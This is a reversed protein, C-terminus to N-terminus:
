QEREGSLKSHIRFQHNPSKEIIDLHNFSKDKLAGQEGVATLWVPIATTDSAGGELRIDQRSIYIQSLWVRPEDVSALDRLLSSFKEKQAKDGKRIFALLMKKATADKRVLEFQAQLKPSVTRSSQMKMLSDYSQQKQHQIREAVQLEREIRSQYVGVVVSSLVMLIAVALWILSTTKFGMSHRVPVLDPHFLDIRHKM